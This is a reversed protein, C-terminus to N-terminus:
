KKEGRTHRDGMAEPYGIIALKQARRIFDGMAELYDIIALKEEDKLNFKYKKASLSSNLGYPSSRNTLNQEKVKLHARQSCDGM